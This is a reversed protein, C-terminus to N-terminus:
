FPYFLSLGQQWNMVIRDCLAILLDLIILIRFAYTIPGWKSSYVSLSILVHNDLCFSM